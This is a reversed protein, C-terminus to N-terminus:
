RKAGRWVTHAPVRIFPKNTENKNPNAITLMVNKGQKLLEKCLHFGIFGAAGTVLLEM